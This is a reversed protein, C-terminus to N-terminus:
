YKEKNRNAALYRRLMRLSSWRLVPRKRWDISLSVADRHQACYPVNITATTKRLLILGPAGAALRAAGLAAMTKDMSSTSVEDIRTAPAGCAACGNPFSVGKYVAAEFKPEPSTTNPDLPTVVKGIVKSYEGCSDCRMLGDKVAITERFMAMCFPCQGVDSKKSFIGIVFVLAFAGVIGGLIPHHFFFAAAAGAGFLLAFIGANVNDRAVVEGSAPQIRTTRNPVPSDATPATTTTSSGM